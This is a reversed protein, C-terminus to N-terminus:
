ERYEFKLYWREKKANILELLYIHKDILGNNERLDIQMFNQGYRVKYRTSDLVLRSRRTNSVDTIQIDATTNSTENPFEFRLVGNCIIYAANEERSLRAFYGAGAHRATDQEYQKVRFSWIESNAIPATNNKAMIRWAYLKSSDLEPMALPYQMNTFSINQQTLVPINQEIADASSQTPQVEVLVMDYLLNNFLNIPMPPSWAFFPRTFDVYESDLPMILQPPSLPEVELTICEESLQEPADSEVKIVSYCINFVGVPLFGDPSPDISYGPGPNYVIPMLNAAQLQHAGTPLPFVRSTATLVQQNTAIDTMVMEIRANITEATNILSLSWLQPKITLGLPPLQVTLVVQAQMILALM